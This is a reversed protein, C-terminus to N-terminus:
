VAFHLKLPSKSFHPMIISHVATNNVAGNTSATVTYNGLYKFPASPSVEFQVTEYQQARVVQDYEIAKMTRDGLPKNDKTVVFVITENTHSFVFTFNHILDPNSAPPRFTVTLRAEKPSTLKLKGYVDRPPDLEFTATNSVSHATINFKPLSRLLDRPLEFKLHKKTSRGLSQAKIPLVITKLAPKEGQCVDMEEMTHSASSKDYVILLCEGTNSHKLVVVFPGNGDAPVEHVETLSSLQPPSESFLVFNVMLQTFKHTGRKLTAKASVGQLNFKTKMEAAIYYEAEDSDITAYLREMAKSNVRWSKRSGSRTITASFNMVVNEACYKKVSWDLILTNAWQQDYSVRLHRPDPWTIPADESSACLLVSLLSVVVACSRLMVLLALGDYRTSKSALM